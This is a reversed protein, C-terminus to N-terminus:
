KGIRCHRQGPGHRIGKRTDARHIRRSEDRRLQCSSERRSQQPGPQQRFPFCDIDRLFRTRKRHVPLEARLWIASPRRRCWAPSRNSTNTSAASTFRAKAWEIRLEVAKGPSQDCVDARLSVAHRSSRLRTVPFMHLACSVGFNM